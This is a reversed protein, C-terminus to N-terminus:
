TEDNLHVIRKLPSILEAVITNKNANTTIGYWGLFTNTSFVM